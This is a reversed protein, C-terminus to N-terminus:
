ARHQIAVDRLRLLTSCEVVARLSRGLDSFHHHVEQFGFSSRQACWVLGAAFAEGGLLSCASGVPSSRCPSDAAIKQSHVLSWATTLCGPPTLFEAVADSFAASAFTQFHDSAPVVV